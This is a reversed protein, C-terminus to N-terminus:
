QNLARFSQREILKVPLVINEAEPKRGEILDILLRAAVQGKEITPQRITTLPPTTMASFAIDDYGIISVEEPVCVGLEHAAQLAGVALVDGMAVMATPQWASRWFRRFAQYGDEPVAKCEVLRVRDGDIALGTENLARLYGGIRRRLLGTYDRYKGSHETLIGLIAIRQHGRDLVYRMAEYAGAEDDINVCPIGPTPESDIMVFPVGRQRLVTITERFPELGITLLGDVAARVIARYLNGRLPPVLMLSFGADHCREGVGEILEFM